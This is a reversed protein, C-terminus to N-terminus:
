PKEEPLPDIPLVTTANLLSLKGDLEGLISETTEIDTLLAKEDLHAIVDGTKGSEAETPNLMKGGKAQVKNRVNQLGASLQSLFSKSMPSVERRWTLWEAITQTKGHLTLSTTLNVKQIATRIDVIRKELDKMSQRQSAVYNVSGGQSEFPDKLMADRGVNSGIANRKKELRKNITKIEALAETITLQPM